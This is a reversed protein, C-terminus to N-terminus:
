KSKVRGLLWEYVGGVKEEFLKEDYREPLGQNLVTGIAGVVQLQTRKDKHWNLITVSPLAETLAVATNKVGDREAESLGDIMLLDFFVLEEETLGEKRARQQEETLDEGLGALLEYLEAIDEHGTNYQHIIDEFRELFTVRSANQAMMQKLKTELLERLDAFALRPHREQLFAMRLKGFNMDSLDIAEANAINYVYPEPRKGDEKVLVSRDLLDDVRERVADLVEDIDRHREVVQRLYQLADRDRRYRPYSYIEPRASDYLSNVTNVYLALQKRYDDKELVREAYDKFLAIQAFGKENQQLIIDVDIGLGLLYCKAEQIAEELMDLLESIEKVPMGPHEGEGRKKKGKSGEAYNALAKTLKRFVGFYDVILGNDKGEIVRNARAIAQMLTHNQMPKDLYLTSVAPADFGTLWMSTVFAIRYPNAPDKFYDEINQGNADADEMLARHPRIDLGQEDFRKREEEESGEQSIVVAMKSEEIFKIALRNRTKVGPDATEKIERTLRKLEEKLAEQVYDYMRVTTFKDICVVMAKMPRREGKDNYQDLRYPFHGVMHRAIARLRDPRRVVELLQHYERDLKGRQEDDLDERELIEAAEGVLDENVQEVEPVSKKYYLPVTAGDEISQAFNYESVYRGFWEETLEGKLLPTGTFAIYQGHPLATRMNEALSKYQTRHAEDVIVVWSKRTSLTPFTKGQPLQFKHILTFLYDRNDALYDRLQTSTYPRYPNHSGKPIERITGTDTFNRYIQEDLDRRDTIILFSWDGPVRRRVKRTFFIMSYSKGSGQTHWFVGLRGSDDRGHLAKVAKNVGYYQHNKAIIKSRGRHYLVFNELYDILTKQNLLGECLRQLSIPRATTRGEEEVELRGPQGPNDTFDQLKSWHFFHEWLASFAGVRTEIGNSIGVFLNYWFLQPIDRRYNILNDDYGRRVKETANKLELMVLPLGNVYLLLDPRRTQTTNLYKISLQSVILFDNNEPTDFDIIRVYADEERGQSRLVKVAFGQLLLYHVERNAAVPEMGARSRTLEEMCQRISEAPVDPNLKQLAAQLRDPLVVDKLRKRGLLARNDANIFKYQLENEVFRINDNEIDSEYLHAM